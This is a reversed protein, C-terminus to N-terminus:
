SPLSSDVLCGQGGWHCGCLQTWRECAAVLLTALGTSWRVRLVWSGAGGVATLKNYLGACLYLPWRAAPPAIRKSQALMCCKIWQIVTKLNVAHWRALPGSGLLWLKQPGTPVLIGCRMLWITSFLACQVQSRFQTFICQTYTNKRRSNADQLSANTLQTCRFESNRGSIIFFKM